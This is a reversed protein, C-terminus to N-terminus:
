MSRIRFYRRLEPMQMLLVVGAALAAGLLLLRAPSHELWEADPTRRMAYERNM